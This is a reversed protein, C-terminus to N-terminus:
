QMYLVYTNGHLIDNKATSRVKKNKHIIPM